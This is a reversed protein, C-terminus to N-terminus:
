LLIRFVASRASRFARVAQASSCLHGLRCEYAGVVSWGIQDLFDRSAGLVGLVPTLLAHQEGLLQKRRHGMGPHPVDVGRRRKLHFANFRDEGGVVKGLEHAFRPRQILASQGVVGLVLALRHKGDGRHALLDGGVRDLLDVDVELRQREREVRQVRDRRAPRVGQGVAVADDALPGVGAHLRHDLADLPRGLVEGGRPARVALLALHGSAHELVFPGVAVQLLAEGVGVVDDFLRQEELRDGVVGHLRPTAHRVPVAVDTM